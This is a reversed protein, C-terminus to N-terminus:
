KKIKSFDLIDTFYKFDLGDILSYITYGIINICLTIIGIILSIKLIPVYYKEVINKVLVLFLPFNIGQIFKMINPIIDKQEFNLFVPIILFIYGILTILLSFYQHKYINDKLIIKSFLSIFIM